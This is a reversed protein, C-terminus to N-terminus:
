ILEDLHIIGGYRKPNRTKYWKQIDEDKWVEKGRNIVDSTHKHDNRNYDGEAYYRIADLVPNTKRDVNADNYHFNRLLYEAPISGFSKLYNSNLLANDDWKKGSNMYPQAGFNTEQSALGLIEQLTVTRPKGIPKKTKRSMLPHEALVPNANHIDVYKALTDLINTSVTNGRVTIQKNVDFPIDYSPNSHSGKITIFRNMKDEYPESLRRTPSNNRRVRIPLAFVTDNRELINFKKDRYGELKKATGNDDVRYTKNDKKNYFKYGKPAVNGNLYVIGNKISVNNKTPM